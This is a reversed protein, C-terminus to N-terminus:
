LCLRNRYSDSMFRKIKAEGKFFKLDKIQFGFMYLVQNIKQLGRLIPELDLTIELIVFQDQPILKPLLINHENKDTVLALILWRRSSSDLPIFFQSLAYSCRINTCLIPIQNRAGM